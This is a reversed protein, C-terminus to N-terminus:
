RVINITDQLMQQATTIIRTNASYAQQTVIMKSFEDAIDANSGELTGGALNRGADVYIPAGSELTEEFVGGDKRKLLNDSAFQALPVQALAVTQGNSYIGMVRGGEGIELGTRTGSPYGDQSLTNINVTGNSDAFQSLGSAGFVIDIAGSTSGDVTFTVSVSGSAPATMRGNGDFTVGSVLRTWKPAAGTADSDSLYYASWTEAGAINSTKGWRIQADVPSGVSNYVTVAQGSITRNLFGTEDSAAITAGTYAPGSLLESGPVTIDAFGTRPYRPLNARYTVETTARAALNDNSVRIVQLASGTPSATIPDVPYGMLSYGSGNVLYGNRDVDFDGRRTYLNQGGFVPVGDSVSTRQKVTFMGEGAIAMNTEIVSSLLDGQKGIMNRSYAGVSGALERGSPLDPVLTSFATDVRKFGTTRSNAINGSINELSFSQATLGSVATTMAGFIGM